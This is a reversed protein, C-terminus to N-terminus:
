DDLPGAVVFSIEIYQAPVPVPVSITLVGKEQAEKFAANMVDTIKDIGPGTEFLESIENM